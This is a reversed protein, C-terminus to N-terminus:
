DMIWRFNKLYMQCKKLKEDSFFTKKGQSVFSNKLHIFLQIESSPKVNIKMFIGHLSFCTVYPIFHTSFYFYSYERTGSIKFYNKVKKTYINSFIIEQWLYWLLTQKNRVSSIFNFSYKSNLSRCFPVKFSPILKECSVFGNLTREFRVIRCKGLGM